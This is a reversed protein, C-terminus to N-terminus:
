SESAGETRPSATRSELSSGAEAAKLFAELSRPDEVSYVKRRPHTALVLGKLVRGPGVEVFVADPHDAAMRDMAESWRVPACLQECLLERLRAGSREARAAVNTYVDFRADRFEIGALFRVLGERAPAMLPSHWAGTVNLSSLRKAGAALALERVRGLAQQEGSVVVQDPININAVSLTGAEAAQEVIRQVADERLGHIAVMGGPRAAAAEAMLEGRRQVIRLFEPLEFVGAAYLAAYEGLSLGAAAVPEFGHARLVALCAANVVSLAPQLNETRSLEREPGTFILAQLERGLVRDALEFVERAAVFSRQLERGMRPYQSGQGPFLFVFSRM